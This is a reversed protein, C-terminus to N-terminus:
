SEAPLVRAAARALGLVCHTLRVYTLRLGANEAAPLGFAVLLIFATGM